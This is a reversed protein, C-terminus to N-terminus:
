WRVYANAPKAGLAAFAGRHDQRPGHRRCPLRQASGPLCIFGSCPWRQYPRLHGPAVTRSRRPRARRAAPAARCHDGQAMARDRDREVAAPTAAGDGVSGTGALLRMAESFPLGDMPLEASSRRSSSWRGSLAIGISRSGSAASSPSAKRNRWCGSSRQRRCRRAPCSPATLGEPHVRQEAELHLRREIPM